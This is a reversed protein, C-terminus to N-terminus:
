FIWKFQFLLRILEQSLDVGVSFSFAGAVEDSGGPHWIKSDVITEKETAM